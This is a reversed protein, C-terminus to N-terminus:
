SNGKKWKKWKKERKLGYFDKRFYIWYAASYIKWFDANKDLSDLLASQPIIWTSYRSL